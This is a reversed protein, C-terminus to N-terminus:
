HPKRLQLILALELILMCRQGLRKASDLHPFRHTKRPLQEARIPDREIILDPTKDRIGFRDIRVLARALHIRQNDPLGNRAEASEYSRGRGVSSDILGVTAPNDSSVTVYSFFSRM